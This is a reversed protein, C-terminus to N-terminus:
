WPSYLTCQLGLHVNARLTCHVSYGRTYMLVSLWQVSYGRTYMLVSLVTYVTVELIVHQEENIDWILRLFIEVIYVVNKTWSCYM